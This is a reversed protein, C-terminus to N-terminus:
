TSGGKFRLEPNDHINGFVELGLCGYSTLLDPDTIEEDEILFACEEFVVTIYHSEGDENIYRLIDGEFIKKGNKDTLGTYQGVTSTDVEHFGIFSYSNMMYLSSLCEPAPAIFTREDSRLLYGEIWGGDNSRKGRFLIERM